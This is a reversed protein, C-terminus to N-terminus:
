TQYCCTKFLIRVRFSFDWQCLHNDSQCLDTQRQKAKDFGWRSSKVGTRHDEPCSPCTSYWSCSHSMCIIFPCLFLLIEWVLLPQAHGWHLIFAWPTKDVRELKYCRLTPTLLSSAMSLFQLCKKKPQFASHSQHFVPVRQRPLSHTGARSSIWFGVPCQVDNKTKRDCCPCMYASDVRM